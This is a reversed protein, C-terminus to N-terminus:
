ASAAAASNKRRRSNRPEIVNKPTRGKRGGTMKATMADNSSGCGDTIAPMTNPASHSRTSGAGNGQRYVTANVIEASSMEVSTLLRKCCPKGRASSEHTSVNRITSRKCAAASSGRPPLSAM